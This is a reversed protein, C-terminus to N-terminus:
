VLGMEFGIEPTKLESLHQNSDTAVAYLNVPVRQTIFSKLNLGWWDAVSLMHNTKLFSKELLFELLTQVVSSADVDPKINLHTLYCTEISQGVSPMNYGFVKLIKFATLLMGPAQTVRMRKAASPSWPLTVALLEGQSDEILVFNETKFGPWVKKRRTWESESSTDFVAGFSKRQEAVDLFSRIRDEDSAKAFRGQWPSSTKAFPKRGYINVMDVTRLFRYYFGFDKKLEVLNRIALANDALIATLFYQPNLLEKTNQTSKLVAAYTKRWLKAVYKTGNTRFDGVYGATTKQGQIYRSGMSISCIGSIQEKDLGLITVGAPGQFELLKNFEPRREYTLHIGAVNMAHEELMQFVANQHKSVEFECLSDQSKLYERLDM